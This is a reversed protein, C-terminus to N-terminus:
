RPTTGPVFRWHGVVTATVKIQSPTIITREAALRGTVAVSLPSFEVGRPINQPATTLLLLEGLRGGGARALTEADARAQSVAEVLARRRAEDSNRASFNVMSVGTAGAGLAADMFAGLRDLQDTEIQIMTTAEYGARRQRGTTQDYDWRPAATLQSQIIESRSLRAVQLANRVAAAARASEASAAAASAALSTIDISFSATTARITEDAMGATVIQPERL